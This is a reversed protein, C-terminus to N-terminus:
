GVLLFPNPAHRSWGAEAVMLDLGVSALDDAYPDLKMDKAQYFM